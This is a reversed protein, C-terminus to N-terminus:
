KPDGFSMFCKSNTTKFYIQKLNLKTCTGSIAMQLQKDAAITDFHDKIPIWTYPNRIALAITEFAIATSTGLYRDSPIKHPSELHLPNKALRKAPRPVNYALTSPKAGIELDTYMTGITALKLEAM